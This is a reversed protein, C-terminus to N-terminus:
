RDRMPLLTQSELLTKNPPNNPKEQSCKGLAAFAVLFILFLVVAGGLPGDEDPTVPSM